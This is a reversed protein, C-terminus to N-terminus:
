NVLICSALSVALCFVHPCALCFPLPDVFASTGLPVTASICVYIYLHIHKIYIYIYLHICEYSFAHIYLHMYIYLSLSVSLILSGLTASLRHLGIPSLCSLSTYVQTSRTRTLYPRAGDGIKLSRNQGFCTACLTPTFPRGRRESLPRPM